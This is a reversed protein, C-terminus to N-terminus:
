DQRMHRSGRFVESPKVLPGDESPSMGAVVALAARSVAQSDLYEGAEAVADAMHAHMRGDRMAILLSAVGKVCYVLEDDDKPHPWGADFDFTGDRNYSVTLYPKYEGAAPRAPPPATPKYRFLWDLFKM